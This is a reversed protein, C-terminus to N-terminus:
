SSLGAPNYGQKIMPRARQLLFLARRLDAYSFKALSMQRQNPYVCYKATLKKLEGNIVKIIRSDYEEANEISDQDSYLATEVPLSVVLERADAVILEAVDRLRSALVPQRLEDVQDAVASLWIRAAQAHELKIEELM